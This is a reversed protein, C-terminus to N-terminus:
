ADRWQHQTRSHVRQLKAGADPGYVIGDPFGPPYATVANERIQELAARAEIEATTGCWVTGDSMIVRWWQNPHWEDFWTDAGANRLRETPSVEIPGAIEDARPPQAEYSDAMGDYVHEIFRETYQFGAPKAEINGTSDLRMSGAWVRGRNPWDFTAPTWGVREALVEALPRRESAPESHNSWLHNHTDGDWLRLHGTSNTIKEPDITEIM